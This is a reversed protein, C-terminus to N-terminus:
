IKSCTKGEDMFGKLIIEGLDVEKQAKDKMVKTLENEVQASIHIFNHFNFMSNPFNKSTVRVPM